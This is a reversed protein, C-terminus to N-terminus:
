LRAAYQAVAFSMDPLSSGPPRSPSFESEDGTAHWGAKEYFARARPNDRMVWLVASTFGEDRLFEECRSMLAGAGGSGWATPHLYFGYIEGRIEDSEPTASEIGHAAIQERGAHGFGVVRGQLTVVFLRSDPVFQWTWSRWRQRRTAAFEEADLYEDPVVGRYGTRWGDIHATAIADADEVDADRVEIM